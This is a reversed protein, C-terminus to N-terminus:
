ECWVAYENNSPCTFHFRRGGPFSFIPKSIKGGAESVKAKTVELNKAYLVLLASGDSTAMSTDARYFGGDIGVDLFCSYDPGYDQFKWGFAAVFFAKTDDLKRAPLELYNICNTKKM